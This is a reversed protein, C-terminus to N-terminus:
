NAKLSQNIPVVNRKDYLAERMIGTLFLQVVQPDEEPEIPAPEGPDGKDGKEGDRGDKGDIGDRGDKGDSIMVSKLINDHILAYDVEPTKGDEGREGKEGPDGKPGAPISEVRKVLEAIEEFHRDLRNQQGDIRAELETAARAVYLKVAEVVKTALADAQSM